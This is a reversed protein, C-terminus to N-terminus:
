PKIKHRVSNLQEYASTCFEPHTAYFRSNTDLLGKIVDVDNEQTFKDIVIDYRKKESDSTWEPIEKTLLSIFRNSYNDVDANADNKFRNLLRETLLKTDNYVLVKTLAWDSKKAYNEIQEISAPVVIWLLPANLASKSIVETASMGYKYGNYNPTVQAMQGAKELAEFQELTVFNYDVGNIEHDRQPRTTHSVLEIAGLAKLRKVLETKGSSSPGCVSVIHPKNIM